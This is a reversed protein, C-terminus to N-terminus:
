DGVVTGEYLEFFAYLPQDVDGLDAIRADFMGLFAELFALHDGQADDADIGVLPPDAQAQAIVRDKTLANMGALLGSAAVCIVGLILGYRIMEKM